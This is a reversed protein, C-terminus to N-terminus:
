QIGLQRIHKNVSRMVADLHPLDDVQYALRNEWLRELTARKEKLVRPLRRCDIHKSVAKDRFADAISEIDITVLRFLFYTDYLDRPETRGILACLKEVLIEALSYVRIKRKIGMSDSYPSMISRDELPCTLREQLTIDVKIDRSGLSGQLPGSYDIYFTLTETRREIKEDGLDLLLGQPAAISELIGRFGEVLKNNSTEELLSFDLDESFRYDLFYMSKIATGGKFALSQRLRSDALGLLVWTIVYDKEIVKEPKHRQAAIRAVESRAIM